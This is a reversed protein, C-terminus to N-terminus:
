PSPNGRMWRRCGEGVGFANDTTSALRDHMYQNGVRQPRNDRGNVSVSSRYGSRENLGGMPIGM